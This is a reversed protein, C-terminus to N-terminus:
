KCHHLLQRLHFARRGGLLALTLLDGVGFKRLAMTRTLVGYRKGLARSANRGKLLFRLDLSLFLEQTLTYTICSRRPHDLASLHHLLTVAQKIIILDDLVDLLQHASSSHIRLGYTYSIGCFHGNLVEEEFIIDSITVTVLGYGLQLNRVIRKITYGESSPNCPFVAAEPLLINTKGHLKPNSSQIVKTTAIL